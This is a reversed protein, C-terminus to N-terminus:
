GLGVAQAHTRRRKHVQLCQVLHYFARQHGVHHSDNSRQVYHQPLDISLPNLLQTIQYNPLKREHGPTSILQPFPRLRKCKTHNMQKSGQRSTRISLHDTFLQQAAARRDSCVIPGDTACPRLSLKHSPDPDHCLLRIFRHEPQFHKCIGSGNSALTQTRQQAFCALQSCYKACRLPCCPTM